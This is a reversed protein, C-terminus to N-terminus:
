HLQHRFHSKGKWVGEIVMEVVADESAKGKGIERRRLLGSYYDLGHIM